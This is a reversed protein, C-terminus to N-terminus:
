GEQGMMVPKHQENRHSKWTRQGHHWAHGDDGWFLLNKAVRRRSPKAAEHILERRLGGKRLRAKIM